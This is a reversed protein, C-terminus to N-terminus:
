KAALKKEMERLSNVTDVVTEEISRFELGLEKKAKSADYSYVPPYPEDANGEPTSDRLEPFKARIIDVLRQYSYRGNTIAFRQNAAAETTYALLHAKALDRVDTYAWFGTPPVEKTSGNFLRYFDASSTNLKDMSPVDSALPGYVMPPLLTTVSFNPKEKEVFDFAAKEAIKKSVLYATTPDEKYAGERTMPNWDAETYNYGPRLGKSGDLVSAFSSTIVVRKVAPNNAKIAKLVSTTGNYAPDFLDKDYDKADIIFPSAMHIVGDVGKVAEDFAGPEAIDKVYAFSLADKHRPHADKVRESSSESRITGRVKFGAEML